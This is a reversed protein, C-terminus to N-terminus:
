LPTLGKTKIRHLIHYIYTAHETTLNKYKTQMYFVFYGVSNAQSYAALADEPNYDNNDTKKGDCMKRWKAKTVGITSYVTTIQLGFIKAIEKASFGHYQHIVMKEGTPRKSHASPLPLRTTM